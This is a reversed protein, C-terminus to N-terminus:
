AVLLFYCFLWMLTQILLGMVYMKPATPSNLSLHWYCCLRKIIHMNNANLGDNL